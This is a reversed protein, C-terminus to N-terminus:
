VLIFLGVFSIGTLFNFELLNERFISCSFENFVTFYVSFRFNTTNNQAIEISNLILLSQFLLIQNHPLIHIVHHHLGVYCIMLYLAKSRIYTNHIYM